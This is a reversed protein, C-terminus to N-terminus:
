RVVLAPPGGEAEKYLRDLFSGPDPNALRGKILENWLHITVSEPALTESVDFDADALRGSQAMTLPYFVSPGLALKAMDHKHAMWTIANPGTCGWPLYSIYPGRYLISRLRARRRSRKRIWPFKARPNEFLQTLDDRMPCVEGFRLVAGNIFQQDQWAFIPNGDFELPRICYLDCDIWFGGVKKSLAYRFYNSFLSPSGSKAHRVIREKPLVKAADSVEIGPPLDIFSNYSHLVVRHGLRAFSMLCGKALPPLKDGIWLAHCDNSEWNGM